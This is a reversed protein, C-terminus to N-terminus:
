VRAKPVIEATGQAETAEDTPHSSHYKCRNTITLTGILPLCNMDSLGQVFKEKGKNSLKCSVEEGGKRKM